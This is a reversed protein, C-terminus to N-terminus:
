RSMLVPISSHNLLSHTVGGLVVERLRSHGYAGAVLMDAGTDVLHNLLMDGIGLDSKELDHGKANVGYRQLHKLVRDPKAYGAAASKQEAITVLEVKAALQLVPVADHLARTAERSGDWAVVVHQPPTAAPVKIYPIVLTPRGSRLIVQDPAEAFINEDHALDYQGIITMDAGRSYGITIENFDGQELVWDAGGALASASQMFTAKLDDSRAQVDSQHKELAERFLGKEFFGPIKVDPTIFLGTLHAGLKE